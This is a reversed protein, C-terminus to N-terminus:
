GGMGDSGGGVSAAGDAASNGAPGSVGDGGLSDGLLSNVRPKNFLRYAREKAAWQENSEMPNRKPQAMTGDSKFMGGM